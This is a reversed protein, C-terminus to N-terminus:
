PRPRRPIFDQQEAGSQTARGTRSVTTAAIQANVSAPRPNRACRKHLRRVMAATDGHDDCPGKRAKQPGNSCRVLEETNRGNSRSRRAAPALKHAAPHCYTATTSWQQWPRQPECPGKRARQPCNSCRALEETNQGNSRRRRAAPALKHAAPHCYTATTSWQQWPGRQGKRAKQPCNSCRALKGVAVGVGVPQPHPNTRQPTITLLRQPGNSGHASQDDFPGKRAKQPCNSCRALEETNRGNSRRRRAAPALKHAAPHCYTATTSWQQWPRWTRSM